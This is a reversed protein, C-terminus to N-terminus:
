LPRVDVEVQNARSAVSFVPFLADGQPPFAMDAAPGPSTWTIMQNDALSEGQMQCFGVFLQSAAPNTTGAGTNTHRIRVNYMNPATALGGVAMDTPLPWCLVKEGTAGIITDAILLSSTIDVWSSGNYYEVIMVAGTQDGAVSQVIGLINWPVDCGVLFGSGSDARNHLQFDGADTDQADTTDDTFVGAATVQGADWLTTPFRCALGVACTSGSRNQFTVGGVAM